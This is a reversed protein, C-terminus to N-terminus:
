EAARFALVANLGGFAFSNSLAARIPAKRAENPVYDLDCAPDPELYNATPPIVGDKMAKAVLVAELAGAAGLAHGHMSKTSSIALKEAHDGFAIKLAATETRDNMETGTGHANVYDIDEPNLGGTSLAQKMARAAGNKDPMVIDGADASLGYGVIEGYIKAGRKKADDLRELVLIGSGEGLVMGRRKASFPRCTDPAMVRLSEWTRLATETLTAESGGTVAARSRGTRVMWYAEGIAHNSSSCASSICFTAGKIGFEMSVQSAAASIMLRPVTSPRARSAGERIMRNYANDITVFGGVGSAIIVATEEALQGDFEIGSDAVAERTAVLAFQSFRDLWELTREDFHKTEDFGKVEATVKINLTSPDFSTAQGIASEGACAREWIAPINPGLANISGIGTIAVRHQASDTM